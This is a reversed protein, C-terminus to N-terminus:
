ESEDSEGVTVRAPWIKLLIPLIILDALLACISAIATLLGFYFVTKLSAGMLIVFGFFLVISTITAAFGARGFTYDLCEEWRMGRAEADKWHHLFHVTDDISVGIVIAAVTATAVDLTIDFVGMVGMMMLVPFINPPLSVIALRISRFGILMMLFIIGLAIFFGRIQSSMVYDIIKVYLPPYGAPEITAVDGLTEEGVKGLDHLLGDLTKASIMKGTLTVRGLKGDQTMFPAILNDRYKPSSRDWEYSKPDIFLSLQEVQEPTLQRDEVTEGSYVDAMRVYINSLGIGHRILEHKSSEKIFKQTARIVEPDRMTRDGKPRVVFDLVSYEGWTTEIHNHQEVVWFDDPLYGITFTDTRVQNAFFGAIVSIIIMVVALAAPSRKVGDRALDLLARIRANDPPEYGDNLAMLAIPMLVFTVMLAAFLGIASYIGMHQITAMPSSALALFGAMTTFTTLFVPLAVRRMTEIVHELRTGPGKSVGVFASPMHIADAVGLIIVLTPIVVSVMNLQHGFYGYVGLSVTSAIAIVGITAAVIRISRFVVLLAIFMLLYAFGLFNGFDRQTLVNLGSYIVGLGGMAHKTEGLEESAITRVEAVIADRKADIDDMVDMEMWVMTQTADKNLVRDMFIPNGTARKAAEDLQAQQDPFPAPIVPKFVLTDDIDWADQLTLISHVRAVGDVGEARQSVKQIKTLTETTFVGDPNEIHLLIVEDNGFEEQFERYTKLQPDTELFWVTLANDPVAATMVGPMMAGSFLVLLGLLVWRYKVVNQIM